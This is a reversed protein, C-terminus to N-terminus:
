VLRYVEIYIYIYIDVRKIWRPRQLWRKRRLKRSDNRGCGRHGCRRKLGGVKPEGQVKGGWEM